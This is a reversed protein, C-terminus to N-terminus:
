PRRADLSDGNSDWRQVEDPPVALVIDDHAASLVPLLDLQFLERRPPTQVAPLANVKAALIRCPQLALVNRHIVFHWSQFSLGYGKASDLSCNAFLWLISMGHIM